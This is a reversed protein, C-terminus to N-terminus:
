DCDCDRDGELDRDGDLLRLRDCEPPDWWEPDRDRVGDFRCAPAERDPDRDLDRVPSLQREPDCDRDREPDDRDRDLDSTRPAPM